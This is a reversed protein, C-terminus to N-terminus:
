LLWLWGLFFVPWMIVCEQWDLGCLSAQWGTMRWGPMVFCYIIKKEKMLGKIGEFQKEGCNENVQALNAAQCVSMSGVLLM